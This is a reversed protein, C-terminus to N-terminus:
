ENQKEPQVPGDERGRERERKERKLGSAGNRIMLVQEELVDQGNVLALLSGQLSRDKKALPM